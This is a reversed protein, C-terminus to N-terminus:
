LSQPPPPSLGMTQYILLMFHQPGSAGNAEGKEFDGEIM